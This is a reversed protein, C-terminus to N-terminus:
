EQERECVENARPGWGRDGFIFLLVVGM